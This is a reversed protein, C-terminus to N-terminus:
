YPRTPESIHILSLIPISRYDHGYFVSPSQRFDDLIAGSPLLIEGDRDLHPTTVLRVAAREGEKISIDKPDIPIGKRVYEIEDLKKHLKQAYGSLQKAASPNHEKLSILGQEENGYILDKLRYRDTRLEM